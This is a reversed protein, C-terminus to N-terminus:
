GIWGLTNKGMNLDSFGLSKRVGRRHPKAYLPDSKSHFFCARHPVTFRAQGSRRALISLTTGQEESSNPPDRRLKCLEHHLDDLKSIDGRHENM